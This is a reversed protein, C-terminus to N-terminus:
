CNPVLDKIWQPIYIESATNLCIPKGLYQRLLKKEQKMIAKPDADKFWVEITGELLGEDLIYRVLPNFVDRSRPHYNRLNAALSHNIKDRFVKIDFCKWIFFKNGAWLKVVAPGARHRGKLPAFFGGRSDRMDSITLYIWEPRAPVHNGNLCLKDRKNLLWQEKALLEEGKFTSVMIEVLCQKLHEKGVRRKLRAIVFTQKETDGEGSVIKDRFEPIGEAPIAFKAILYKEGFWIRAVCPKYLDYKAKYKIRMPDPPHKNIM